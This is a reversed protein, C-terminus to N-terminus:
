RVLLGKEVCAVERERQVNVRGIDIYMLYCKNMPCALLDEYCYINPIKVIALHLAKTDGEGRRWAKLLTQLLMSKWVEVM